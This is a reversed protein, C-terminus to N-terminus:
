SNPPMRLSSTKVGGIEGYWFFAEASRFRAPRVPERRGGPAGLRPGRLGPRLALFKSNGNAGDSSYHPFLPSVSDVVGNGLPNESFPSSPALAKCGRM